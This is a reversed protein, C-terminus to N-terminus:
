ASLAGPLEERNWDVGSDMAHSQVRSITELMDRCAMSWEGFSLDWLRPMGKWVVGELGRDASGVGEGRGM